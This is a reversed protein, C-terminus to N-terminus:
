QVTAGILSAFAFTGAGSMMVVPNGANDYRRGQANWLRWRLDLLWPVMARKGACKSCSCLKESPHNSM